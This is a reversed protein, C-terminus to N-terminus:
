RSDIRTLIILNLNFGNSYGARKDTFCFFGKQQYFYVITFMKANYHWIVRVFRFELFVIM